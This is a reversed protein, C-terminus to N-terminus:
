ISSDHGEGFFALGAGDLGSGSRTNHSMICAQFSLNSNGSLM